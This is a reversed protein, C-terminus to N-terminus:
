CGCGLSPDKLTWCEVYPLVNGQSDTATAQLEYTEILRAVLANQTASVTISGPARRPAAPARPM